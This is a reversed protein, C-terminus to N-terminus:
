PESLMALAPALRKVRDHTPEDPRIGYWEEAVMSAVAEPTTGFLRALGDLTEPPPPSVRERNAVKNFWGSSRAEGSDQQMDYYRVGSRNLRIVTQTFPKHNEM